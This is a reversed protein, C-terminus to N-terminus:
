RRVMSVNVNGPLKNAPMRRLAAGNPVYEWRTTSADAKDDDMADRLERVSCVACRFWYLMPSGLVLGVAPPRMAGDSESMM